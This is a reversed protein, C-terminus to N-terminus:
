VSSHIDWKEAYFQAKPSGLKSPPYGSDQAYSDDYKLYSGTLLLHIKREEVTGNRMNVRQRIATTADCDHVHAMAVVDAEFYHSADMVAKLKTYKFRSGSKGHWSYLTYHQSGVRLLSWCAYGLYPIRLQKAMIRTPNMGTQITIREEHNGDHIGVILGEDVLPEILEIVSEMQGQPDLKQTYVSDGISMRLGCELLDGMLLVYVRHKKCYELMTRAREIDCQPHGYHLDGFFVLSAYGKEGPALVTKNL